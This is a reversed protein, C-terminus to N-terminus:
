EQFEPLIEPESQGTAKPFYQKHEINRISYAALGPFNGNSEESVKHCSMCREELTFARIYRFESQNGIERLQYWALKDPKKGKAIKDLFDKLVREETQDPFNSKNISDLTVRHIEWGNTAIKIANEKANIACIKEVSLPDDKKYATEYEQQMELAYNNIIEKSTQLLAGLEEASSLGPSLFFVLLVRLPILFTNKLM